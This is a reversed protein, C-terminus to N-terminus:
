WRTAALRELDAASVAHRGGIGELLAARRWPPVDHEGGAAAAEAARAAAIESLAVTLAALERETPEGGGTVAFRPGSGEEGATM